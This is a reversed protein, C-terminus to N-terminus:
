GLKVSREDESAKKIADINTSGNDFGDSYTDKGLDLDGLKAKAQELEEEGKAVQIVIASTTSESIGFNKFADRINKTPSLMYLVESYINTTKLNGRSDAHLARNIALILHFEDIVKSADVIAMDKVLPDQDRIWGILRSVADKQLGDFRSIVFSGYEPLQSSPIVKM